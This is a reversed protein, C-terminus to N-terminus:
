RGSGVVPALFDGGIWSENMKIFTLRDVSDTSLRTRKDTVVGGAASFTRESLVSSPPCSLLELAYQALERCTDLRAVWYEMPDDTSMSDSAGVSAMYDAVMHALRQHHSSSSSSTTTSPRETQFFMRMEEMLDGARSCSPAAVQQTLHPPVVPPRPTAQELRRVIAAQLEEMRHQRRSAPIFQELKGKCRPDLLTAMWFDDRTKITKVRPDRRLCRLMHAAMPFLVARQSEEISALHILHSEEERLRQQDFESMGLGRVIPAGLVPEGEQGPGSEPVVGAVVEEEEEDDDEEEEEEEQDQGQDRHLMASEEQEVLASEGAELLRDLTRELMFLIPLVSNLGIQESSVMKTAQEFSSLVQCVQNIQGWEACAIFPLQPSARQTGLEMLYERVARQQEWLRKLMHLTSNWRTVSDVILRHLPLNYKRQLKSLSATATPSRRFHSAIRRAKAVIDSLGPYTRLFKQVVLNLVHALCPVHTLSGASLAALLNSGNDCVVM